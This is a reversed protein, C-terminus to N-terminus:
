DMMNHGEDAVALLDRDASIKDCHDALASEFDYPGTLEFAAVDNNELGGQTRPIRDVSSYDLLTYRVVYVPFQFEIKLSLLFLHCYSFYKSDDSSLDFVGVQTGGPRVANIDGVFLDVRLWHMPCFVTVEEDKPVARV